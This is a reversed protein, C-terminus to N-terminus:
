ARIRERRAPIGNKIEVWKGDQLSEYSEFACPIGEANLLDQRDMLQFHLHPATSSGSHGALALEQGAAVIQGVSVKISGCKAHAILCYLENKRLIIYNGLYPRLDANTEPRVFIPKIISSFFDTVVHVPNREPIGDYVEVIEGDFPSVIPSGWFYTQNLPVGITFYRFNSSKFFKYGKTHNWDINFFDYAYTQGLLHTGHSPVRFGPTNVACCEGRIPFKVFITHM